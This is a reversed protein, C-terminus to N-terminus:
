TKRATGTVAIPCEAVNALETVPPTRRLVIRGIGPVAAQTVRTAIYEPEVVILFTPERDTAEPISNIQNMQCSLSATERLPALLKIIQYNVAKRFRVLLCLLCLRISASFFLFLSPRRFGVPQGGLPVFIFKNRRM